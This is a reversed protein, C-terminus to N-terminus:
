LHVIDASVRSYKSRKNLITCHLQIILNIYKITEKLANIAQLTIFQGPSAVMEKKCLPTSTKSFNRPAGSFQAQLRLPFYTLIPLKLTYALFVILCMRGFVQREM